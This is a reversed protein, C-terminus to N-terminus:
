ENSSNSISELIPNSYIGLKKVLVQEQEKEDLFCKRSKM